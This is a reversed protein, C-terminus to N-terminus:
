ATEEQAHKSRAKEVWHVGCLILFIGLIKQVSIDKEYWLYDIVLAASLNGILTLVTSALANTKPTMAIILVLAVLGCAGGLYVWAPVSLVHTPHLDMGKGTLFVLALALFTAEFYNILAGNAPGFAKGARVNIMKNVSNALGIFFAIIYNM